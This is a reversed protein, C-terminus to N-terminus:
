APTGFCHWRWQYADLDETDDVNVFASAAADANDDWTFYVAGGDADDYDDNVYTPYILADAKATVGAFVIGSEITTVYSSVDMAAGNTADYDSPGAALGCVLVLGERITTSTVDSLTMPDDAM